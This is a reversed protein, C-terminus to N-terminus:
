LSPQTLSTQQNRNWACATRPRARSGGRRKAGAPYGRGRVGVPTKTGPVFLLLTGFDVNVKLVAM